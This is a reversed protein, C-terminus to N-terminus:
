DNKLFGKKFGVSGDFLFSPRYPLRKGTYDKADLYTLKASLDLLSVDKSLKLEVGKFESWDPINVPKWHGYPLGPYVNSWQILNKARSYFITLSWVSTSGVGFEAGWNIESELGPNGENIYEPLNDGDYDFAQYPWYLDNLTPTRTGLRLNAFAFRKTCIYKVGLMPLIM